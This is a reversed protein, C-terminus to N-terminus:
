FPLYFNRSGSTGERIVLTLNQEGSSHWRRDLLFLQGRLTSGPAVMGDEADRLLIRSQVTQGSADRVEAFLPVFGFTRDSYNELVLNAVYTGGPNIWAGELGLSVDNLTQLASLPVSGTALSSSFPSSSVSAAISLPRTLNAQSSVRPALTQLINRSRDATSIPPAGTELRPLFNDPRTNSRNAGASSRVQPSDFQKTTAGYSARQRTNGSGSSASANGQINSSNFGAQTQSSIQPAAITGSSGGQAPRAAAQIIRPQLWETTQRREPSDPLHLSVAQWRAGYEQLKASVQSAAFTDPQITKLTLVARRWQLEAAEYTQLTKAAKTQETAKQAEAEARKLLQAARNERELHSELGQLTSRYSVLVQQAEAYIKSSGSVAALQSLSDAMRDRASQLDSLNRANEFLTKAGVAQEIARRYRIEAQQDGACNNLAYCLSSLYPSRVGVVVGSLPLLTLLGLALVNKLQLHSQRGSTSANRGAAKVLVRSTTRPAATIPTITSRTAGSVTNLDYLDSELQTQAQIITQSDLGVLKTVVQTAIQGQTAQIVPQIQSQLSPDAQAPLAFDHPPSVLRIGTHRLDSSNLLTSTGYKPLAQRLQGPNFAGIATVSRSLLHLDRLIVKASSYRDQPKEAMMKELIEVLRPNLRVQAQWKWELSRPDILLNPPKGTLLVVATVALAYLDSKPSCQGMRIQEYPAYGFKGVSVSAQILGDPHIASMGYFHTAVQKVVGFDILVPLKKGRPLMINDPAIDRHVINEGHIYDLVKLLDSLWKAIEAETFAKRHQQREQLVRWYTKGNIYEQVIFLRDNEELVAFFRPIQPHNLKHLVTAERQFLERLKQAVVPDSQNSPAFEKLVCPDGFRRDDAALYTRGFGGRGLVRQIRYRGDILTGPTLELGATM